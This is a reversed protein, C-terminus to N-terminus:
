LIENFYLDRWDIASSIVRALAIKEGLIHDNMHKEVELVKKFFDMHVNLIRSKDIGHLVKMFFKKWLNTVKDNQSAQIRDYVLQLCKIQISETDKWLFTSKILGSIIKQCTDARNM